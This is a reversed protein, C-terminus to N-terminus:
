EEKKQQEKEKEEDEKKKEDEKNEQDQKDKNEQDKKNQDEKNKDQNKQNDKNQDQNKKEEELKKRLENLNEDNPYKKLGKDVTAIAKELKSHVFEKAGTNFFGKASTQSNASLGIMIGMALLITRFVKTYKHLQINTYFYNM